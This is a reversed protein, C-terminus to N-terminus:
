VRTPLFMCAGIVCMAVLMCAVVVCTKCLSACVHKCCDCVDQVFKCLCAHLLSVCRACVQVFMCTAIVCMNGCVLVVHCGYDCTGQRRLLACWIPMFVM